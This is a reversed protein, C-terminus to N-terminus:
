VCVAREHDAAANQDDQGRQYIAFRADDEDPLLYDNGCHVLDPDYVCDTKLHIQDYFGQGELNIEQEYDSFDSTQM